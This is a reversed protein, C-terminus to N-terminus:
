IRKPNNDRLSTVRQNADNLKATLMQSRQAATVEWEGLAQRLQKLNEMEKRLVDRKVAYLSQM